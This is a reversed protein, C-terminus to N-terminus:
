HCLTIKIPFKIKMLTLEEQTCSVHYYYELQAHGEQMAGGVIYGEIDNEKFHNNLNAYTQIYYNSM